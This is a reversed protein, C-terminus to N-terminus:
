DRGFPIPRGESGTIAEPYATMNFSRCSLPLLSGYGRDPKVPPVSVPIIARQWCTARQKNAADMWALSSSVEERTELNALGVVLPPTGLEDDNDLVKGTRHLLVDRGDGARTAAEGNWVGTRMGVTLDATAQDTPPGVLARRAGSVDVVVDRDLPNPALGATVGVAQQGVKQMGVAMIHNAHELV